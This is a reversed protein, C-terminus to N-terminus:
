SRVGDDDTEHLLSLLGRRPHANAGLMREEPLPVYNAFQPHRRRLYTAPTLGAFARFENTLHAQDCYGFQYAVDAWGVSQARRACKAVLLFRRLRMYEKPTVGVTDRFVEVFRRHSLGVQEVIQLVSQCRAGPRLAQLAFPVAPHLALPRRAQALLYRELLRFRAEPTPLELLRERLEKAAAGWLADLPEHLDLLEGAPPAFFPRLGGPHFQVGVRAMCHGAQLLYWNASPGRLLTDRFVVEQQLNRQTAVRQPDGALQVILQASGLPLAIERTFPQAQEELLWFYKVFSSLPPKPVFTVYM